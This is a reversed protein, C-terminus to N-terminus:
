GSVNVLSMERKLFLTKIKGIDCKISQCLKIFGEEFKLCLLCLFFCVGGRMNLVGSIYVTCVMVLDSCISLTINCSFHQNLISIATFLIYHTVLILVFLAGRGPESRDM